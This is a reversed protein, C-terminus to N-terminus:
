SQAPQPDYHVSRKVDRLARKIRAIADYHEEPMTQKSIRPLMAPLYESFRRALAELQEQSDAEVPGHGNKEAGQYIVGENLRLTLEVGKISRVKIQIGKQGHDTKERGLPTEGYLVKFLVGNALFQMVETESSM